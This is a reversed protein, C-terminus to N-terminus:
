EYVGEEYARSKSSEECSIKKVNLLNFIEFNRLFVEWDKGRV